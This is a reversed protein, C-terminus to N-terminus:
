KNRLLSLIESLTSQINDMKKELVRQSETLRTIQLDTSVFNCNMTITNIPSNESLLAPMRNRFSENHITWKPLLSLCELILSDDWKEGVYFFLLKKGLADVENKDKPFDSEEGFEIPIDLKYIINHIPFYAVVSGNFLVEHNLSDVTPITIGDLLTFRNLFKSVPFLLRRVGEEQKLLYLNKLTRKGRNELWRIRENADEVLKYFELSPKVGRRQLEKCARLIESCIEFPASKSKQSIMDELWGQPIITSEDSDRPQTTTNEMDILCTKEKKVQIM